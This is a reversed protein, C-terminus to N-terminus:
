VEGEMGESTVGWGGSPPTLLDSTDKQQTEQTQIIEEKGQQQIFLQTIHPYRELYWEAEEDSLNNNHHVAPAGPAFQHNGPKLIYKKKTTMPDNTM